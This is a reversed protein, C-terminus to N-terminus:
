IAEVINNFTSFIDRSSTNAYLGASKKTGANTLAMRTVLITQSLLLGSSIGRIGLLYLTLVM